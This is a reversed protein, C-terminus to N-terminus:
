EELENTVPVDVVIDKESDEILVKEIYAKLSIDANAAKIKLKKLNDHPLYVEKRAIGERYDNPQKKVKAKKAMNM